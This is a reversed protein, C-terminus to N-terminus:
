SENRAFQGSERSKKFMLRFFFIGLIVYIINILFATTLLHWDTIGSKLAERAAEFVYTPPFIYAIERLPTPLVSVPYLAATLPQFMPVLGWAFAQIRTGFCFILGLIAIGISFAFLVFNIYFLSLNLLGISFINFHFIFICIVSTTLFVFLAKISGSLVHAFIYEKIDLPSVFMNSLNRSWINWLSGVSVSYQTIFIIQWLLMGMLVSNGIFSSSAGSLYTSLFGFLIITMSPFFVIDMIIEMSRLSVFFEQYLVAKIRNFM